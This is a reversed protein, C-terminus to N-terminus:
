LTHRGFDGPLSCARREEQAQLGGMIRLYQSRPLEM